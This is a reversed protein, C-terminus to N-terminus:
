DINEEKFIEPQNYELSGEDDEDFSFQVKSNGNETLVPKTDNLKRKKANRAGKGTEATTSYTEEDDEDEAAVINSAPASSPGSFRQRNPPRGRGRKIPNGNEDVEYLPYATAAAEIKKKLRSYRSAVADKSIKLAKSALEFKPPINYANIIAQMLILEKMTDSDPAPHPRSM